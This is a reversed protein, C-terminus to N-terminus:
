PARYGRHQALQQCAQRLPGALPTRNLGTGIGGSQPASRPHELTGLLCDMRSATIPLPGGGKGGSELGLDLVGQGAALRQRAPAKLLELEVEDHALGLHEIDRSGRRCAYVSQVAAAGSATKVTRVYPM